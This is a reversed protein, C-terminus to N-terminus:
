TPRMAPLLVDALREKDYQGAAVENVLQYAVDEPLDLRYGELLLQVTMAAWATRKNGDAFPHNRTVHYLVAAARAQPTPHLKEGFVELDVQALASELGALDRVGSIGGYAAIQDAHINLVFDISLM